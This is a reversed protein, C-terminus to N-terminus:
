GVSEQGKWKEKSYESNLWIRCQPRNEVIAIAELCFVGEDKKM